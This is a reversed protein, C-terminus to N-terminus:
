ILDVSVFRGQKIIYALVSIMTKRFICVNFELPKYEPIVFDSTLDVLLWKWGINVHYEGM